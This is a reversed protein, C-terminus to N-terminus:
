KQYYVGISVPDGDRVTVSARKGGEKKVARIQRGKTLERRGPYGQSVNDTVTWGKAPLESLYYDVVAPYPARASYAIDIHPKGDGAIAVVRTSIKEAGPYPPIQAGAESILDARSVFIPGMLCLPWVVVVILFLVAQPPKFLVGKWGLFGFFLASLLVPLILPFIFVLMWGGFKLLIISDIFLGVAVGLFVGLAIQTEDINRNM